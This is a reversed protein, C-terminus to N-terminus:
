FIGPNFPHEGVLLLTNILTFMYWVFLFDIM